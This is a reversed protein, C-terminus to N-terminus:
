KLLVRRKRSDGISSAMNVEPEDNVLLFGKRYKQRDRGTSKYNTGEGEGFEM